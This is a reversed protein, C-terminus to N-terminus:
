ADIAAASEKAADYTRIAWELAHCCWLFHHTYEKCDRGWDTFQFGDYEFDRMALFAGAEGDDDVRGLVYNEIEEWLSAKREETWDEEDATAQDFYDKVNARFRAASFEEFGDGKDCAELKEAWYRLDMRYQPCNEPRRFFQFMDYQRDRICM